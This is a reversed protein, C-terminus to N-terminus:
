SHLSNTTMVLESPSGWLLPLTSFALLVALAIMFFALCAPASIQRDKRSQLFVGYSPTDLEGESLINLRLVRVSGEGGTRNFGFIGSSAFSLSM